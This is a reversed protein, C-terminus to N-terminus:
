GSQDILKQYKEQFQVTLPGALGNGIKQRDVRTLPMIGMLSNTLFAEQAAMLDRPKAQVQKVQIGLRGAIQISFRRTVGNLCGCSLHPTCLRDNHVFFINSRSAEALCGKKNLLIAEEFGKKVAKKYASLYLWYDISKVDASKVKEDLGMESIVASFGSKYKSASHERYPSCIVASHVRDSKRWITLRLRAENLRNLRLSRYLIEKIEKKKFPVKIKMQGLGKALRALHKDVAFIHGGYSRMTEFVGEGSIVGPTLSHLLSKKGPIKEGDLLIFYETNM